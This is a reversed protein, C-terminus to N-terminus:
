DTFQFLQEPLAAAAGHAALREGGIAFTGPGLSVFATAECGAAEFWAPIRLTLDPERRHRTWIVTAGPACLAPVARITREVDDDSVNGFVGVLLLLDVPLRDAFVATHGADGCLVDVAAGVSRLNEVARSALARDLEVVAGSVPTADVRDRLADALDRADGACLSLVRITGGTRADLCEGILRTVERRRQSLASTPDDYDAHWAVWDKMREATKGTSGTSASTM